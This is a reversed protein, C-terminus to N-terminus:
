IQTKNAKNTIEEQTQVFDELYKSGVKRTFTKYFGTILTSVKDSIVKYQFLLQIYKDDVQNNTKGSAMLATVRDKVLKSAIFSKNKAGSLNERDNFLKTHDDM